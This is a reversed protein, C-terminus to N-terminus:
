TEELTPGRLEEDARVYLQTTTISAHGLLKQLQRLSMGARHLHTAASVRVDHVTFRDVKVKKCAVALRRNLQMGSDRPIRSMWVREAADLVEPAVSVEVWDNGKQPARVKGEKRMVAVMAASDYRMASSYLLTLVDAWPHEIDRFDGGEKRRRALEDRVKLLEERPVPRHPRINGKVKLQKVRRLPNMAEPIRETERGWRLMAKLAFLDQNVSSGGVEKGTYGGDRRWKIFVEAHAPTIQGLEYVGNFALAQRWRELAKKQGAVHKETNRTASAELFETVAKDIRYSPGTRQSYTAPSAEFRELEAVASNLTLRRTSIQYRVGQAYRDIWYVSNRIFGGVWRRRRAM